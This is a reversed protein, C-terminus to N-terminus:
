KVNHEVPWRNIEPKSDYNNHACWFASVPGQESPTSTLILSRRQTLM